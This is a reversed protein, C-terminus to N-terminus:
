REVELQKKIAEYDQLTDIDMLIGPDDVEVWVREQSLVYDRLTVQAPLSLIDAICARDFLVPHGPRSRHTPVIVRSQTALLAAYVTPAILPCDGPLLFFRDGGISNVGVCVSSFMGEAFRPNFVCEIKRYPALIEEILVRNWGTVVVVRETWALMGEVSCQIVTKDGLPLTMKYQPSRSSLGAALVIGQISM